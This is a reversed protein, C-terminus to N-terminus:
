CLLKSWSIAVLSKPFYSVFSDKLAESTETHALAVGLVRKRACTYLNAPIYYLLTPQCVGLCRGTAHPVARIYTPDAALGAKWTDIESELTGSYHLCPLGVLM